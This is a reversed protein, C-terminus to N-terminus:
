QGLSMKESASVDLHGHKAKFAKLEKLWCNFSKSRNHKPAWDFGRDELAAVRDKDLEHKFDGTM